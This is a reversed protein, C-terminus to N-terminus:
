NASCKHLVWHNILTLDINKEWNLYSDKIDSLMWWVKNDYM